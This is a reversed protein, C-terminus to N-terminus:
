VGPGHELDIVGAVADRDAAATAVVLQEALKAPRQGRDPEGEVDLAQVDSQSPLLPFRSAGIGKPTGSACFERPPRGAGIGKPTGSARFERPPRGTGIGKPSGSARLKRPPPAAGTVTPISNALFCP